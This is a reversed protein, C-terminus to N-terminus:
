SREPADAGDRGDIHGSSKNEQGVLYLGLMKELEGGPPDSLPTPLMPISWEWAVSGQTHCPTPHMEGTCRYLQFFAVVLPFEFAAGRNFHLWKPCVWHQVVVCRTFTYCRACM